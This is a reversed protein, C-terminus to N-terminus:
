PAPTEAGDAPVPDPDGGESPPVEGGGDGGPVGECHGWDYSPFSEPQLLTVEAVPGASLDRTDHVQLGLESVSYVYDEVFVGRFISARWYDNYGRCTDNGGFDGFLDMHSVSPLPEIDTTTVRFLALESKYSGYWGGSTETEQWGSVPIALLDRAPFYNFAKHDWLVESWTSWDEGIVATKVSFPNAPDQVNFIEIKVGGLNGEEDGDRGATLLFGDGLPHIYSSFGPIKLEGTVTPNTPDSLDIVYLPDIQRFTVVYGQGELFRVGVIQEGLGLGDVVGQQELRDGNQRLVTVRNEVQDNNRADFEDSTAVRLNGGFEDLAFQNLAFGLVEGSASYRANGEADYTFKHIHTKLAPARLGANFWWDQYAWNTAGIYLAEQSAYVHGWDGQVSSGSIAGDDADLTVLTLLDSGTYVSPFNVDTCPTFTAGDGYVVDGGNDATWARPLWDGLTSARIKAINAERVADFAANIASDSQSRTGSMDDMQPWYELNNFYLPNTQALYVKDDIRRTDLTYGDIFREKVVRPNRKDSLDITTVVAVHHFGRYDNPEELSSVDTAEAEDTNGSGSQSSGGGEGERSPETATGATDRAMSPADPSVDYLDAIGLVIAKDGDLFFSEAYGRIAVRGIEATETAPWSKVVVLEGRSLTYLHTGDTKVRDAEDVGAVQTNTESYEDPAQDYPDPKTTDTTTSTSGVAADWLVLDRGWPCTDPSLACRRNDELRMEMKLIAADELREEAQECSTAATLAATRTWDLREAIRSQTSSDTCGAASLVGLAAVLPFALRTASHTIRLNM